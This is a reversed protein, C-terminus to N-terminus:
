VHARGIQENAVVSLLGGRGAVTLIARVLSRVVNTWLTDGLPITVVHRLRPGLQELHQQLETRREADPVASTPMVVQCVVIGTPCTAALASMQELSWRGIESTPTSQWVVLMVDGATCWAVGGKTVVSTM